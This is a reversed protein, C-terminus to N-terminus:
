RDAEYISRDRQRIETHWAKLQAKTQIRTEESFM